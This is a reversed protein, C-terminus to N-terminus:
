GSRERRMTRWRWATEVMFAIERYRPAFGLVASARAVDAVLEPPDGARREAARIPITRGTVCQAAAHVERVTHGRGTGLNISTSEGGRELYHLALVHGQALDSVHVYDRVCTGDRTAYDSGFVEICSLTGEAAMLVRPILHPEPDHDEGTEGDPDCGAANFYRLSVSRLGYARSYERLAWEIVLKTAGYPNIPRQPTDETVPIREPVGYTACTSSFVLKDIGRGRVAELLELTGSVNNGYYLGPDTLSEGVYALAAFHMVSDIRHRGLVRELRGRDRVDGVELPGWRVMERHGRSLNDYAVPVHGALALAKCAHSGM